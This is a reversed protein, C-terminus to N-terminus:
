DGALYAVRNHLGGGTDCKDIIDIKISRVDSMNILWATSRRYVIMPHARLSKHTTYISTINHPLNAMYQDWGTLMAFYMNLPLYDYSNIGLTIAIHHMGYPLYNCHIFTPVKQAVSFQFVQLAGPLHDFSVRKTIHKARIRAKKINHPLADMNDLTMMYDLTLYRIYPMLHLQPPIDDITYIQLNANTNNSKVINKCISLM